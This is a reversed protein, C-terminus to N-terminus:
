FHSLQISETKLYGEHRTGAKPVDVPLLFTEGDIEIGHGAYFMLAVDGSKLKAAFDEIQLNM